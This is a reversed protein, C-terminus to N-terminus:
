NSRWRNRRSRPLVSVVQLGEMQGRWREIAEPIDRMQGVCLVSDAYVCVKAKAWKIAQDHSLVSRTWSPSSYELWKVNLIEESHEMVLKQTINFLSEIEEFKTNKYIESNSLYNPRLISPPEMDICKNQISADLFNLRKSVNGVEEAPVSLDQDHISPEHIEHESVRTKVCGVLRRTCNSKSGNERMVTHKSNSRGDATELPWQLM